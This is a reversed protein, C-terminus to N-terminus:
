DGSQRQNGYWYKEVFRHSGDPTWLLPLLKWLDTLYYWDGHEDFKRTSAVGKITTLRILREGRDRGVRRLDLLLKVDEGVLRREDYGGFSEFDRRRCFVLGTDMRLMWVWPMLLWYTVAIGASLREMRVGSAGAVVGGKGLTTEIANFSEPHIQGDADVFCLIEGRAVAAGGNRVSGIRRKEVTVVRAGTEAAITATDDTSGNDAVIVEVEAAGHRYRRRAIEVTDLLRPLLERENYAPIVLSFRPSADPTPSM